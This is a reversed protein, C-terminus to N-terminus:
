FDEWVSVEVMMACVVCQGEKGCMEHVRAGREPAVGEFEYVFILNLHIFRFRGRIKSTHAYTHKQM